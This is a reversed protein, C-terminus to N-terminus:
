SGGNSERTVEPLIYVLPSVTGMKHVAASCLALLAPQLRWRLDYLGEQPFWVTAM